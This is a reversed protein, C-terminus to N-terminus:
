LLAFGIPAKPQEFKYLNVYVVIPKDIGEYSLQYRDLLGGGLPLSEDIFECCSGLRSVSVDEGNPGILSQFYEIHAGEYKTGRLFGGLNIPNDQSFGYTPDNSTYSFDVEVSNSNNTSTCGFAFVAFFLFVMNKM